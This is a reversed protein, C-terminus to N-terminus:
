GRRSLRLSSCGLWPTAHTLLSGGVFIAAPAPFGGFGRGFLTPEDGALDDDEGGDEEFWRQITAEDVETGEKPGPPKSPGAWQAHPCPVLRWPRPM